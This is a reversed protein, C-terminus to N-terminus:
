FGVDLRLTWSRSQPISSADRIAGSQYGGVEPDPFSFSHWLALNRGKLSLTARGAGMTRVWRPPLDYAISVERLRIFDGKEIFEYRLNRPGVGATLAVVRAQEELPAGPDVAARCLRLRCQSNRLTNLQTFGAQRNALASIRLRGGFLGLSASLSQHHPATTRGAYAASDAMQVEDAEIIGNGNADAWSEIPWYFRAGLPYGEVTGGSATYFPDADGLDLITNENSSAHLALTLSAFDGDLVRASISGEYGHNEVLGINVLYRPIANPVRAFTIVDTARRQFRTADLRIRGNLVLLDFGFEHERVREPRLDPNRLFSLRTVSRVQGEAFGSVISFTPLAATAGPQVGSAGFAYRVRLEDLWRPRPFFPEDSVLWSANAKPYVAARYGTGFSSAGDVRLAGTVFFRDNLGVTQELYSGLTASEGYVQSVTPTGSAHQLASGGPTLDSRAARLEDTLTHVYQAGASTRFSLRGHGFTATVGLEATEATRNRRYDAVRGALQAQSQGPPVLGHNTAHTVDLGAIGRAQLWPTLRWQASISGVFRAVQDTTTTSFADGPRLAAPYPDDPDGEFAGAYPSNLRLTPMRRESRAYGTRVQIERGEGLLATVNARLNTKTVANPELQEKPLSRVGRELMLREREAPPMALPGVAHAFDGSFFYRFADSGGSVDAGFQWRPRKRFMDYDPDNLPNFAVISDQVCTGAAVGPLLCNTPQDNALTRGYAWYNDPFRGPLDADMRELYAHWRAPGPQGRRTTIVIVGNAADTGYLTAASPGKVVEVSEIDNVNLDNLRSAAPASFAGSVVPGDIDYRIGDVIVIPDGSGEITNAGRIRLRANGGVTGDEQIVDLGPVRSNLLETVTTVPAERSLSDARFRAVSHGLEVRRQEGTATVVLEALTAPLVDLSVDVTVTGAAPVTVGLTARAYGLRQAILTYAGPPVDPLRYTGSDTTIAGHATGELMVYAGAIPEGSRRDSVRGAVAGLQIPQERREVLAVQGRPGLLVDVGAGLLVETLAAAVTIDEARLRVRADPPLIAKSYFFRLGSARSIAALADDLPVDDLTLTVQRRLTPATRLDVPVPTERANAAYLFRPGRELPRADDEQASASQVGLGGSFLLVLSAALIAATRHRITRM